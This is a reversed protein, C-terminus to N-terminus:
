EQPDFKDEMHISLNELCECILEMQQHSYDEVFFQYIKKNIEIWSCGPNKRLGKEKIRARVKRVEDWRGASAYMNSLAVYTSHDNPEIGLLLRAAEEGLDLNGHLICASFFSGLLGADLKLVPVSRLIEYAEELKGLRGLLDILCSYHESGPEIGYKSKMHYFYYIGEDVMGGHSCASMLALFTVRDPRVKRKQMEEYLELAEITRGNSGYAMIMSTWSVTDKISLKDFVARAERVVGCKAYLEVLVCMVIENSEFNSSRIQEHIERGKQLATLQACASLCSTFTIADPKVDYLKMDHFVDLAEFFYGLTVYGSIMVNWLVVNNKQTKQFIFESYRFEGCKFYFDVLSTAVFIDLEIQNRLVYGHVYKGQWIASTRSCAMLLSSITSSTPRIGESKMRLFLEFCSNWDGQLGYGNIMSNFAVVSKVPMQDFAERASELCGCKGYMDVIAARVFGDMEYDSKVLEEHMRKGMELDLLRACASFVMSFTVSDPKYGFSLMKDFMELAKLAQGDQYYCSIVNNWCAVDREPMEEFLKVASRLSGCKAYMGVLSSSVVVDYGFGLKLLHTHIMRGKRGDGLGGCAKLVSPFTYCDPKVYAFLFCKDYIGIAERHMQNKSCVAILSNWLFIDLPNNITELVLRASDFLRFFVYFNILTKCLQFSQQLGISISKAHLLKGKALSNPVTSATLLAAISHFDM